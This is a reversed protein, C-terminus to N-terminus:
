HLHIHCSIITGLSDNLLSFYNTNGVQEKRVDLIFETLKEMALLFVEWRCDSFCSFEFLIKKHNLFPIFTIGHKNLCGLM